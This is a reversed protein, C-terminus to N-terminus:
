RHDCNKSNEALFLRKEKKLFINCFSANHILFRWKKALINASVIKLIM